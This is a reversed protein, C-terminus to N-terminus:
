GHAEDGLDGAQVLLGDALREAHVAELVIVREHVRGGHLRRQVPDVTLVVLGAGLSDSAGGVARELARVKRVLDLGDLAREVVVQSFLDHLGILEGALTGVERPPLCGKIRRSNKESFRSSSFPSGVASLFCARTDVRLEPRQPSAILSQLPKGERPTKSSGYV